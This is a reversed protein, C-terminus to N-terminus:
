APLPERQMALEAELSERNRFVNAVARVHGGVLYRVTCDHREFSGDIEVRDWREVHGVYSVAVDYQHTWFFPVDNFPAREGVLTRAVAQGQRQAVVWHEIRVLGGARPDPWQAVDGIAYIGRAATELFEDVVIGREVRLGAEAALATAPRVGVGAVVLDAALHEGGDLVVTRPALGAASRGLHFVVGHQEHVARIFDGFEPGLIRELPRRGPAVLHVDVNRARLASAVELGIFSAGLVVAVRGRGAAEIIARGDQWTRLYHVRPGGDGALALPVPDAGTALVIAGFQRTSGDDLTVRRAAAELRVVRRGLVLKVGLDDYYARPHLPLWEEPANGALYDKSLNPRDYPAQEDRDFVTIEGAFGLHRLEEAASNGAGGAGIIAVSSLERGGRGRRRVSGPKDRKRTVFVAGDREASEYSPVSNLAPPCLAEGTRLSFCAHHWPCRVTDDVVLGEALPGSWHSCTAGVAHFEGNRRVLIVADEGVHGLFPVGEELLNVAIGATLDPTPPSQESM